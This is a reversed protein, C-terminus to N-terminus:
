GVSSFKTNAYDEVYRILKKSLENFEKDSLRLKGSDKSTLIFNILALEQKTFVDKNFIGNQIMFSAFFWISATKHSSSELMALANILLEMGIRTKYATEMMLFSASLKAFSERIGQFRNLIDIHKVVLYDKLSSKIFGSVNILNMKDIPTKKGYIFLEVPGDKNIAKIFMGKEIYTKAITICRFRFSDM